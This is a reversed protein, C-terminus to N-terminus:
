RVLCCILRGVEHLDFVGVPLGKVVATREYIRDDFDFRSKNIAKEM